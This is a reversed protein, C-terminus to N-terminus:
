RIVKIKVDSDDFMSVKFNKTDFNYDIKDAKLNGTIHDLKVNNYIEIFNKTAILDMNDAFIKTNGDTAKVNEEFFCNYTVKNYRGKDSVIDVVRGDSLYLKVHMNNMYVLDPFENLIYAKESNVTFPKNLDYLGNFELNEFATTREKKEVGKFEKEFAQKKLNEDRQLSPYYLYTLVFLILGVSLLGIQFKFYKKKM